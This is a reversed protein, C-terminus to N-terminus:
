TFMRPDPKAQDIIRLALTILLNASLIACANTKLATELEARTLLVLEQHELDDSAPIITKAADMALYLHAHGCGRNSDVVFSGLHIWTPAQYGTEEALERKAAALPDEDPELYGGPPALNMGTAMYKTQKFM